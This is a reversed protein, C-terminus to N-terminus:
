ARRRRLMVGIGLLGSGLLFVTAPEPVATPTITFQGSHTSAISGTSFFTAQIGAPTDNIQTSFGGGWQATSSGDTVSGGAGLGIVTTPKGNVVGLYTLLFPSGPVVVCSQGSVTAGACNTGLTPNPISFGTLDFRLAPSIAPFTMFDPVVGGGITLNKIDGTVGPGLTGGSYTVNTGIGTDVCGTDAATGNPSWIIQTGTVTVGGGPCNAVNFPGVIDARAATAMGFIMAAAALSAMRFRKM